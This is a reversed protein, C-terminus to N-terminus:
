VKTALDSVQAPQLAEQQAKTLRSPLKSMFGPNALSGLEPPAPSPGIPEKSVVTSQLAQQQAKAAHADKVANIAIAKEQAETITKANLFDNRAAITGPSEPFM